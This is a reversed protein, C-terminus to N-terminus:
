PQQTSDPPQDARNGELRHDRSASPAAVPQVKGSPECAFRRRTEKVRHLVTQAQVYHARLNFSVWPSASNMPKWSGGGVQALVAYYEQTNRKVGLYEEISSFEPALIGYRALVLTQLVRAMRGNGDKFPHIM